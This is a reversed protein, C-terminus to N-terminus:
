EVALRSRLADLAAERDDFYYKEGQVVQYDEHGKGAIVVVSGPQAMNIALQIAKARDPEVIYDRKAEKAGQEIQNIIDLPDEFRPNDTTIVAIDSLKAGIHGMLPRKSDDRNGGCGFVSILSKPKLEQAANLVNELGDPTHAYDVAVTFDQGARILEFRGPVQPAHALYQLCEELDLGEAAACALAALANYINFKGILPMQAEYTDGRYQLSFSSGDLGIRYSNLRLDATDKSGFSWVPVASAEAFAAASADDINVIGYAPKHASQKLSAFLRTKSARYAELSGHYDLHDQTLNTFVAGSFDCCDTRGQSLAHSSAEMVVARCGEARMLAFLEFLELSEPTTHTAPLVRQGAQNRITGILGTGVGSSELLLKILYTVTTKGNTGTVGILRLEQEPHGYYTAALRGLLHRSDETLILAIGPPLNAPRREAVVAIAGAALASNIYKHGDTQMGPIAVFMYGQKVKRSDYAIGAVEARDQKESVTFVSAGYAYAVSLLQQLEM